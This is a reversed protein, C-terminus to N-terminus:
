PVFRTGAALSDRMIGDVAHEHGLLHGMEHALVTLLDVLGEEGQDGDLQFEVDDLPSHDVFWGRGAADSDLWITRGSVRALERGPLQAIRVNVDDLRTDGYGAFNWRQIAADVIQPIQEDVLQVPNASTGDSELLL